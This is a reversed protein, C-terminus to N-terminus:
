VRKSGVSAVVPILRAVAPIRALTRLLTVLIWVFALDVEVEVIQSEGGDEVRGPTAELEEICRESKVDVV